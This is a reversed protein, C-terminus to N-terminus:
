RVEKFVDVLRSAAVRVAGTEPDQEFYHRVKLRLPSRKKHFDSASCELPVVQRRGDATGVVTFGEKPGGELRDGLLIRIEDDPRTPSNKGGIPKDVLRRGLFGQETRWVLIEESPAFLRMELLNDRFINPCHDPFPSSSLRWLRSAGDLQGWTVGNRCHALLWILEHDCEAPRTGGGIWDLVALCTTQGLPEISCENLHSM